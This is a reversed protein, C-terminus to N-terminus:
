LGPPTPQRVRARAHGCRGVPNRQYSQGPRDRRRGHTGGPGSARLRLRRRRAAHRPGVLVSKGAGSEGVVAVAAGGPVVLDVDSLLVSDDTRVGVGRFELRGPGDPLPAAGYAVPRVALVETVRSVGARARALQSFVSTLPGLGGGIVAYQSAAFLEGASIRHAALEIGGTVLVAVMVLPGVFTAQASSRSLVRWTKAGQEHLEPLPELVRREELEVTGASAITRAGTLSETLRGAIRGQARQYARVVEATRVAFTRIVVSVLVLGALLAVALWIDIYALLLVSGIPPLVATAMTMVTPGAQAADVANNSVRTVLDGTAFRRAGDPGVALLHGVIRNRLWATTGAICAKTTYANSLEFVIGLAILGGAAALWTGSGHGSVLADVAHGLVAPLALMGLSGVLGGLAILPLWGGGRRVVAGFTIM